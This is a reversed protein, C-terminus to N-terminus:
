DSYGLAKLADITAEDAGGKEDDVTLAEGAPRLRLDLELDETLIRYRKLDQGYLSHREAPDGELNFWEVEKRRPTWIVKAPPRRLAYIPPSKRPDPHSEAVFLLDDRTPEPDLLLSRGETGATSIGALGQLTAAVDLTRAHERSIGAPVTGGSLILPVRLSTDYLLIDHGFYDRHEALGEGHDATLLITTNADVANAIRGVCRDLFSVEAAYQATLWRVDRATLAEDDHIRNQVELSPERYKGAYARDYLGSYPAPPSYPLHADFFHAWYFSGAGGNEALWALATDAIRAGGGTAPRSEPEVVEYRDFGRNLGFEPGLVVKSAVVAGTRWNAASVRTAITEVGKALRMRNRLLGHGRPSIGSLITAHSPTTLPISTVADTWTMGRRALRDIAPTRIDPHGACGLYDHRFTDLTILVLGPADPPADSKDGGCAALAVLLFTLAPLLLRRAM